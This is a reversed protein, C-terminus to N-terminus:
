TKLRKFFLGQSYFSNTEAGVDPSFREILEFRSEIMLNIIKEESLIYLTVPRIYQVLCKKFKFLNESYKKLSEHMALGRILYNSDFLTCYNYM